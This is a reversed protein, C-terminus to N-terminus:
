PKNINKACKKCLDLSDIFREQGRIQIIAQYSRGQAFGEEYTAKNNDIFAKQQQELHEKLSEIKSELEQIREIGKRMVETVSM